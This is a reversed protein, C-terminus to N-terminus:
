PGVKEPPHSYKARLQLRSSRSRASRPTGSGAARRASRSRPRRGGAAPSPTPRRRAGRVLQPRPRVDPAGVVPHGARQHPLVPQPELPHARRDVGHVAASATRSTVKPTAVAHTPLAPPTTATNSRPRTSQAQSASTLTVASVCRSRGPDSVQRHAGRRRRANGHRPLARAAPPARPSKKPLAIAIRGANAVTRAIRVKTSYEHMRPAEAQRDRLSRKPRRRTAPAAAHGIRRGLDHLRDPRPLAEAEVRHAGPEARSRRGARSGARRDQRPHVAPAAARPPRRRSTRAPPAPRTLSPDPHSLFFEYMGGTADPGAADSYPQSPDGGSWAHKMGRVVWYEGLEAKENDAPLHQGHLLPGSARHGHHDEGAHEGGLTRRETM